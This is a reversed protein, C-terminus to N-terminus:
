NNVLFLFIAILFIQNPTSHSKTATLLMKTADLLMKTATFIVSDYKNSNLLM